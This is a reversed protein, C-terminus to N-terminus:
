KKMDYETFKNSNPRIPTAIIDNARVNFMATCQNIKTCLGEEQV